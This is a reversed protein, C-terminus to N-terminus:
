RGHVEVLKRRQVTDYLSKNAFFNLVTKMKKSQIETGGLETCFLSWAHLTVGKNLPQQRGFFGLCVESKCKSLILLSRTLCRLTNTRIIFWTFARLAPHTQIFHASLSLFFSLTGGAACGQLGELSTKSGAGTARCLLSSDSGHHNMFAMWRNIYLNVIFGVYSATGGERQPRAREPLGM